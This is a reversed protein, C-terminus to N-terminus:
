GSGRQGKPRWSRIKPDLRMTPMSAPCRLLAMLAVRIDLASDKRTQFLSLLLAREYYMNRGFLGLWIGRGVRWTAKGWQSGTYLEAARVSIGPDECAAAAQFIERIEGKVNANASM